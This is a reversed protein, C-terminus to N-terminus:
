TKLRLDTNMNKFSPRYEHKSARHKLHLIKDTNFQKRSIIIQKELATEVHHLVDCVTGTGDALEWDDNIM